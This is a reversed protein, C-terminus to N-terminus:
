MKVNFPYKFNMQDGKFPPFKMSKLVGIICSHAGGVKGSSVQASGVTGNPLIIISADFSVIGSTQPNSQFLCQSVSGTYKKIINNIKSIPLQIPVDSEKVPETKAATETKTGGKAGEKQISALMKNIDGADDEKEEKKEEKVPATEPKSKENVATKESTKSKPSKEVPASSVANYSPLKTHKPEIIRAKSGKNNAGEQEKAGTEKATDKKGSAPQQIQSSASVTKEDKPLSKEQTRVAIENKKPVNLSIKEPIKVEEETGPYKLFFFAGASAGAVIAVAIVAIYASKFRKPKVLAKPALRALDASELSIIGSTEEAAPVAPHEEPLSKQEQEAVPEEEQEEEQEQEKGISAIDILGDEEEEESESEQLGEKKKATSMYSELSYLVSTERSKYASRDESEQPMEASQKQKLDKEAAFPVEKQVTESSYPHTIMTERKPTDSTKERDESLSISEQASALNLGITSIMQTAIATQQVALLSNLESVTGLEEWNKFGKKWIYTKEDIIKDQIKESIQDTTFPGQKQGEIVLHWLHKDSEQEKTAHIIAGCKKCKIKLISSKGAIKEDPISYNTRCNQCQIRM